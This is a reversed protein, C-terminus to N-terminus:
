TAIIIVVDSNKKKQLYFGCNRAYRNSPVKILTGKSACNLLKSNMTCKSYKCSWHKITNKYRNYAKINRQKIRGEPLFIFFTSCVCFKYVTKTTTENYYQVAIQFCPM